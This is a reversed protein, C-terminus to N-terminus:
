VGNFMGGGLLSQVAPSIVGAASGPAATKMALRKKRQEENEVGLGSALDVPPVLGLDGVASMSRQTMTVM